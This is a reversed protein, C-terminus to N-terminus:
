KKVEEIFLDDGDYSVEAGDVLSNHLDALDDGNMTRLSDVINHIIDGTVLIRDGMLAEKRILLIQIQISTIELISQRAITADKQIRAVTIAFM